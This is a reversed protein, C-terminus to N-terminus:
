RSLAECGSLALGGAVLGGLCVAAVTSFVTEAVNQFPTPYDFEGRRERRRQRKLLAAHTSSPGIM